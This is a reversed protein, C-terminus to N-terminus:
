KLTAAFHISAANPVSRRRHSLLAIAGLASLFITSPEPIPVLEYRTGRLRNESRIDFDEFSTGVAVGNGGDPVTAQMRQEFDVTGTLSIEDLNIDNGTFVEAASVQFFRRDTEAELPNLSIGFNDVDSVSNALAVDGSGTFGVTGTRDVDFNNINDLDFSTFVDTTTYRVQTIVRQSTVLVFRDPEDSVVIPNITQVYTLGSMVNQEDYAQTTNIIGSGIDVPSFTFEVDEGLILSNREEWVKGPPAAPLTIGLTYASASTTILSAAGASIAARGLTRSTKAIKHKMTEIQHTPSKASSNKWVVYDHHRICFFGGHTTERFDQFFLGPMCTTSFYSMRLDSRGARSHVPDGSFEITEPFKRKRAFRPLKASVM